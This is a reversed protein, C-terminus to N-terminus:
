FVTKTIKRVGEILESVEVKTPDTVKRHDCKNRLDGLHQIFRWTPTEIAAASKLADNLDSISPDKKRVIIKHRECVAVLHAELVVGAIAGAGRQFGQANLEEAGHLEDDMLDAHVLTRIDFLTSKFRRQLGQVINFQNYMPVLAADPGVLVEGHRRVTTGRLYDGITYNSYLIDKRNGKPSYYSKFDDEREPLLQAVLALAESYWPEYSARPNPLNSLQEKSLDSEIKAKPDFEKQMAVLLRAGELVLRQIDKEYRGFNSAM